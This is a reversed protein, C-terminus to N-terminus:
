FFILLSSSIKRAAGDTSSSFPLRVSALITILFTDSSDWAFITLSCNVSSSSAGGWRAQLWSVRLLESVNLAADFLVKNDATEM